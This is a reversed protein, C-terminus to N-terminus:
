DDSVNWHTCLNFKLCLHNLFSIWIWNEDITSWAFIACFTILNMVQYTGLAKWTITITESQGEIQREMQRDMWNYASDYQETDLVISAPDM